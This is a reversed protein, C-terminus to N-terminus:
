SFFYIYSTSSEQVLGELSSM